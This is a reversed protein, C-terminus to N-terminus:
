IECQEWHAVALAYFRYEVNLGTTMEGSFYNAPFPDKRTGSAPRRQL